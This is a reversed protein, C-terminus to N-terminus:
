APMGLTSAPFSHQLSNKDGVLVLTTVKSHAPKTWQQASNQACCFCTCPDRKASQQGIRQTVINERFIIRQKGIKEGLPFM